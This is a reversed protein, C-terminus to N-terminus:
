SEDLTSEIEVTSVSLASPAEVIAVVGPSSVCTEKSVEFALQSRLRCPSFCMVDTFRLFRMVDIFTLCSRVRGSDGNGSEMDSDCKSLSSCAGKSPDSAELAGVVELAGVGLAEDGRGAEGSGTAFRGAEGTGITCRGAEGTGM